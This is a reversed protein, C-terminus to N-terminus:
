KATLHIAVTTTISRSQGEFTWARSTVKYANGNLLVDDGVAPLTVNSPVETALLAGESDGVFRVRMM